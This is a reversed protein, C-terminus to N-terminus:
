FINAVKDKNWNMDNYKNILKNKLEIEEASLPAEATTMGLIACFSEEMISCIKEPAISRGTQRKISTVSNILIRLESDSRPPLMLAASEEPNFDLLLSGHQLFGGKQRKQASGCIKRGEVLLEHRSAASFCCAKFQNEALARGNEALCAKIGLRSLGEVLCDSITKYTGMIDSPFFNDDDGAAICYTLEVKHFVAKGGTLRRVIDIGSARCKEINVEKEADQFFGISVAAPNWGYFRLTPSKRNKITAQLVAEDIAMNECASYQKYPILRWAPKMDTL